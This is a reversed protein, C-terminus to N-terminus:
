IKRERDYPVYAADKTTRSAIPSDVIDSYVKHQKPDSSVCTTQEALMQLTLKLLHNDKESIQYLHLAQGIIYFSDEPLEVIFNKKDATYGSILSFASTTNSSTRETETVADANERTM